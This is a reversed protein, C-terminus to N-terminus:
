LPHDIRVDPSLEGVEQRNKVVQGFTVDPEHDHIRVPWCVSPQALESTILEAGLVQRFECAQSHLVTREVNLGKVMQRFESNM